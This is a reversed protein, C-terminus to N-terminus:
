YHVGDAVNTMEDRLVESLYEVIGDLDREATITNNNTMDVRIEATTFENRWEMDAIKRLYDLDDNSLDMSDSIDGVDSGIGALLEEASPNTYSNTVNYKEDDSDPLGSTLDKLKSKLWSAGDYGWDYGTQYADSTDWLANALADDLMVSIQESVNSKEEYTGNGWKEALKDATGSLGKQWGAVKDALSSGFISDIGLAITHLIGLVSNALSEFAHIIAGIPDNFLNGFFNAFIDWATTLPLIILKVISTLLTIFTNWIVSVAGMTVGVIIGCADEFSDSLWILAIVIAALILIILTLPWNLAMWSMASKAAATVAAVGMKIFNTILGGCTMLNLLLSYLLVGGLIVALTLLLKSIWDWNDSVWTFFGVLIDILWSIVVAVVQIAITIGSIIKQGADSSLLDNIRQLISEFSKIAVNKINTWAQRFTIANNEFQKDITSGSQMIAAVVMESTVLGEAAIDKLSQTAYKKTADSQAMVGQVYQEIAKYALPAGERVSRLEDGALTGSGLAQTLQYMSSNMEADSAGGLAYTEAMIEQFRIANDINGGFADGALTMSKSVNSMMKAYGMYVKQSSAYMKDMSEQTLTGNGGNMQTIRNESQTITDSTDLVARTGMIGLYTAAIRKLKTGISGALGDTKHLNKNLKDAAHVSRNLGAEIGSTSNTKNVVNNIKNIKKILSDISKEADKTNLRVKATLQKNNAM